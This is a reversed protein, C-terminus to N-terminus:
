TIQAPILAAVRLAAAFRKAVAGITDDFLIMILLETFIIESGFCIVQWDDSWLQLLYYKKARQFLLQCNIADSDVIRRWWSKWYLLNQKSIQSNMYENLIYIQM